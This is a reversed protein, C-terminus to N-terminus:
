RPTSATLVEAARAVSRFLGRAYLLRRERDSLDGPRGRCAAHLLIAASVSVNLSEVFGRMPIRVSTRAAASLTHRIGDRENGLVLALRPIAALDDPELQGEPHTTILQFDAATLTEVASEVREHVIVDVWRETGQAVARSVLFPEDFPVVHARQLGFADCSRLVAAGNHPDHPADMVVTVSGIRQALVREIRETRRSSVLPELQAIVGETTWAGSWPLSGIEDAELEYVGESGRRVIARRIATREGAIL